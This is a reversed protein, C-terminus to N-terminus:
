ASQAFAEAAKRPRDGHEGDAVLFGAAVSRSGDGFRQCSFRLRNQHQLWGLSEFACELRRAFAYALIQEFNVSARSVGAHIEGRATARDQLKGPLNLFDGLDRIQFASEGEIRSDNM